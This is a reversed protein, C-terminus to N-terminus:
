WPIGALAVWGRHHRRCSLRARRNGCDAGASRSPAAALPQDRPRLAREAVTGGARNASQRSLDVALRGARDAWRRGAARGNACSQGRSGLHRGRARTATRGSLCPQAAGAFQSGPDGRRPGPRRPRCDPHRCQTGARVRALGRHLHCLRRHVDAQGRDPRGARGRDPHLGCLFHYLRQCGVAAGGRRRRALRRHQRARYQRDHRRTSRCRLRPEHGGADALHCPGVAGSRGSLRDPGSPIQHCCRVHIVEHRSCCWSSAETARFHKSLYRLMPAVRSGRSVGFRRASPGLAVNQRM